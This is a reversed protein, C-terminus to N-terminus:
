RGHGDKMNKREEEEVGCEGVRERKAVRSKLLSKWRCRYQDVQPYNPPIKFERQRQGGPGGGVALYGQPLLRVSGGIQTNNPQGLFGEKAM